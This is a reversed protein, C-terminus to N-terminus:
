STTTFHAIQPSFQAPLLCNVSSVPGRSASTKLMVFFLPQQIGRHSISSDRESEVNRNSLFSLEFDFIFRLVIFNFSTILGNHGFHPLGILSILGRFPSLHFANQPQVFYLDIPQLPLMSIKHILYFIGVLDIWGIAASRNIKENMKM